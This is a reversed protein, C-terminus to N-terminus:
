KVEDVCVVYLDWSFAAFAVTDMEEDKIVAILHTFTLNLSRNIDM